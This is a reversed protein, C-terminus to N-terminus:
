PLGSSFRVINKKKSKNIGINYLLKNFLIKNSNELVYINKDEYNISHLASIYIIIEINKKIFYDFVSKRCDGAYKIGAHPIICGYTNM